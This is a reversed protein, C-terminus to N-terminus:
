QHDQDAGELDASINSKVKHLEAFAAQAVQYEKDDCRRVFEISPVAFRGKDNEELTNSIKYVRAFMDEGSYKVMSLFDKATDASTRMLPLIMPFESIRSGAVLILINYVLSFSPPNKGDWDIANVLPNKDHPVESIPKSIYKEFVGKGFDVIKNDRSLLVLGQGVEFKVHTKFMFLPVFELAKGFNESTISHAMDGIKAKDQSVLKSTSQMISLRPMKIDSQIDIEDIGQPRDGTIRRAVANGQAASLQGGSAEAAGPERYLYKM